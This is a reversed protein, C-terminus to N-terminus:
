RPKRKKKRKKKFFGPDMGPGTQETAMLNKIIELSIDMKFRELSALDSLSTNRQQKDTQSAKKYKLSNFLSELTYGLEGAEYITRNFPDIFYVKQIEGKDNREFHCQVNKQQLGGILGELSNSRAVVADLKGQAYKKYPIKKLKNQEMKKELNNLTPSTYISSAKIPIGIKYGDRDVMSYSLGRNVHQRSGVAGRYATVNYQGLIANLEELSTYKYNAAVERVINSIAAKTEAKGYVAAELNAPTPTFPNEKKRSEAPILGYEQELDKRAPESKRQVLNHINISRGNAKIPTTVIHIHAHGADDHRYVLYPQSEFGIRDMYDAVIKQLFETNPKEGIAFNLSIHMANTNVKQSKNNLQAFRRLKQSFTL